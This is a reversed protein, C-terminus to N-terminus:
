LPHLHRGIGLLVHNGVYELHADIREDTAEAHKAYVLPRHAGPRLQEHAVGALGELDRVQILELALFMRLNRAGDGAIDAGDGFHVLQMEVGHQMVRVVFIVIVELRNDKRRRHRAERDFGLAAALLLLQRIAQVLQHGLIRAHADLMVRAEILRNEIPHTLQVQAHQEIPHALTVTHLALRM